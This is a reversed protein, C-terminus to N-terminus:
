IRRRRLRCRTRGLSAVRLRESVEKRFRSTRLSPNDNSSVSRAASEFVHADIVHLHGCIENLQSLRSPNSVGNVLVEIGPGLADLLVRLGSVAVNAWDPKSKLTQFDVSFADIEPHRLLEIVWDDLDVPDLWSVHLM